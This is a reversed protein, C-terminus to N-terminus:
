FGTAVEGLQCFFLGLIRTGGFLAAIQAAHRCLGGAIVDGGAAGREVPEAAAPDGRHVKGGGTDHRAHFIAHDGAASFHHANGGRVAGFLGVGPNTWEAHPRAISREVRDVWLRM